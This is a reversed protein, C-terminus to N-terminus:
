VWIKSAFVAVLLMLVCVLSAMGVGAVALHGGSRNPDRRIAILAHIGAALAFAQPLLFLLTLWRSQTGMMYPVMCFLAPGAFLATVFSATAFGPTRPKRQLLRTRYNKCAACLSKGEFKALCRRCFSLGCGDCASEKRSSTHNFCYDADIPAHPRRRLKQVSINPSIPLPKEGKTPEFRIPEEEPLEPPTPATASSEWPVRSGTGCDCFM